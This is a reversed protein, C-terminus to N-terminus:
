VLGYGVGAFGVAYSGDGGIGGGCDERVCRGVVLWGGGGFELLWLVGCIWARIEIHLRSKGRV